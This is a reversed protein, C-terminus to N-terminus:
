HKCNLLSKPEHSPNSWRKADGINKCVQNTSTFRSNFNASEVAATMLRNELTTFNELCFIKREQSFKPKMENKKTREARRIM